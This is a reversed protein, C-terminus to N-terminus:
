LVLNTRVLMVLVTYAVYMCLRFLAIYMDKRQINIQPEERYVAVYIAYYIYHTTEQKNTYQSKMLKDRTYYM